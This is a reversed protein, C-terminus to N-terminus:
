REIILITKITTSGTRHIFLEAPKDTGNYQQLGDIDEKPVETIFEDKGMESKKLLYVKAGNYWSKQIDFTTFSGDTETGSLVDTSIVLRQNDGEDDISYVSGWFAQFALNGSSDVEAAHTKGSATFSDSISFIVHEPKITALGEDDTGLRVM